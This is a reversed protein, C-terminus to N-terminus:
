RALLRAPPLSPLLWSTPPRTTVSQAPPRHISGQRNRHGEQFPSDLSWSSSIKGLLGEQKGIAIFSSLLGGEKAAQAILGTQLGGKTQLLLKLRDFPATLTKGIAGAVAGALFLVAGKDLRSLVADPRNALLDLFPIEM